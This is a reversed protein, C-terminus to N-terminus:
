RVECILFSVKVKRLNVGTWWIRTLQSLNVPYVFFWGKTRVIQFLKIFISRTVKPLFTTGVEVKLGAKSCRQTNKPEKM